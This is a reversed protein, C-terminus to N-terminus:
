KILCEALLGSWLKYRRCLRRTRLQKLRTNHSWKCHGSSDESSFRVAKVKVCTWRSGFGEMCTGSIQSGTIDVCTLVRWQTQSLHTFEPKIPTTGKPLRLWVGVDNKSFRLGKKFVKALGTDCSSIIGLDAKQVGQWPICSGCHYM